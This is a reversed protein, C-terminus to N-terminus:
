STTYDSDLECCRSRMRLGVLAREERSAGDQVDDGDVGSSCREVWRCVRFRLRAVVM